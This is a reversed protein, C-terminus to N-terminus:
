EGCNRELRDAFLLIWDFNSDFCNNHFFTIRSDSFDLIEIQKKENFMDTTGELAHDLIDMDSLDLLFNSYDKLDQFGGVSFITPPDSQMKAKLSATFDNGTVAELNIKVNPHTEEYTDIAKQYGENAEIKSQYITIETTGSSSGKGAGGTGCGALLGATMTLTLTLATMKKVKM